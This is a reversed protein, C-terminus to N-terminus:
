ATAKKRNFHNSVVYVGACVLAFEIVISVPDTLGFVALLETLM